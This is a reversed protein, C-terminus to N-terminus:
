DVIIHIIRMRLPCYPRRLVGAWMLQLQPSTLNHPKSDLTRTALALPIGLSRRIQRAISTETRASYRYGCFPLYTYTKCLTKVNVDDHLAVSGGVQEVSETALLAFSPETRRGVQKAARRPPRIPPSLSGTGQVHM